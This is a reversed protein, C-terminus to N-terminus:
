TLRSVEGSYATTLGRGDRTADHQEETPFSPARWNEWLGALGFPPSIRLMKIRM